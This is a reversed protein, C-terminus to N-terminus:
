NLLAVGKNGAYKTPAFGLSRFSKDCPPDIGFLESLLPFCFARSSIALNGGGRWAPFGKVLAFYIPIKLLFLMNTM